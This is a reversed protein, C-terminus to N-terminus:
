GLMFRRNLVLIAEVIFTGNTQAHFLGPEHISERTRLLSAQYGPAGGQRLRYLVFELILPHVVLCYFLRGADSFANSCYAPIIVLPDTHVFACATLQLQRGNAVNSVGSM